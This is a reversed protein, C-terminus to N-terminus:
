YRITLRIMLRTTRIREAIGCPRDDALPSLTNCNSLRFPTIPVGTSYLDCPGASLDFDVKRFKGSCHRWRMDLMHLIIKRGTVMLLHSATYFTRHPASISEKGHIGANGLPLALNSNGGPAPPEGNAALLSLSAGSVSATFATAPSPAVFVVSLAAMLLACAFRCPIKIAWAPSHLLMNGPM